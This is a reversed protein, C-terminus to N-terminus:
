DLQLVRRANDRYVGPLLASPLNAADITWNGQPPVDDGSYDFATDATELFRRHRAYDDAHPPFCDTGFLVRDPFREVLSRFAQPRRGLEGLRGAIDINWNDHRTLMEGVM